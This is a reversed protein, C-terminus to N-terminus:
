STAFRSPGVVERMVATAEAIRNTACAQLVATHGGRLSLEHIVDGYLDISEVYNEGHVSVYFDRRRTSTVLLISEDCGNSYWSPIMNQMRWLRITHRYVDMRRKTFRIGDARLKLQGMAALLEAVEAALHWDQAVDIVADQEASAAEMAAFWESDAHGLLRRLEEADTELGAVERGLRIMQAAVLLSPLNFAKTAPGAPPPDIMIMCRPQVDAM